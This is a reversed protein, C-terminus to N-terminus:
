AVLQTRSFRPRQDSVGAQLEYELCQYPRRAAGDPSLFAIRVDCRATGVM